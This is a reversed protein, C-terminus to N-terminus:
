IYKPLFHQRICSEMIYNIINIGSVAERTYINIATNAIEKPIAIVFTKTVICIYAISRFTGLIPTQIFM